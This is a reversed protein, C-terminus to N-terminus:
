WEGNSGQIADVLAMRGGAGEEHLSDSM